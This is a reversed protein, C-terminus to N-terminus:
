ESMLFKFILVLKAVLDMFYQQFINENVFNKSMILALHGMAMPKVM